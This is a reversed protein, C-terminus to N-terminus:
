SRAARRLWRRVLWAAPKALDSGARARHPPLPATSKTSWFLIPGPEGGRMREILAAAAKASYTTDLEFGAAERFAVIARRGGPTPQGYGAGLQSGDVELSSMLRARSLAAEPAEALRALLEGTRSALGVIRHAATVPWPTVRVAHITPPRRWGLGRAACLQTGLLLGATTCTSGVALVIRRPAPLVGAEIQLAVEFAASVYGLAGRPTAGGPVMVFPREGRREHSREAHLMGLPLASWHPLVVPSPRSGVEAGLLVEFNAQATRSPPQPFVVVGAELGVRPAHLLAATGHNTGFAGTSYVHTAGEELAQAFLVELTRVKNGGYIPSSRDDRKVYAETGTGLARALGALPEIPTPLEGLGVLPLALRPFAEFLPRERTRQAPVAASDLASDDRAM